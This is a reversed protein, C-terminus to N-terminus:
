AARGGLGVKFRVFAKLGIRPSTWVGSGRTRWTAVELAYTGRSHARWRCTASLRLHRWVGRARARVHLGFGASKAARYKPHRRGLPTWGYVHLDKSHYLNM